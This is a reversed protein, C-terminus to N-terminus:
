RTREACAGAADAAASEVVREGGEVVKGGREEADSGHPEGVFLGALLLAHCGLLALSARPTPPYVNWASEIACFVCLRAATPIPAHWLLFPLSHFYWAYFQYHLTRAFVIGVFNAGLMTSAVERASLRRPPAAALPRRADSAARQMVARLGGDARCWRADALALLALVHAGLLALALRKSVFLPQPVFALNVSWRHEFVRSLDFSGCVYARANALLYPAGLALQIAACLAIHAVAFRAGGARLLLVLLGPAHLLASMKVSVALSFLSCCASWRRHVLAALCAYVLLSAVGDNFLRLLYISHLRKSVCLLALAWPPALRARRYVLLALALTALYIPLFALQALRNDSGDRTLARLAAFVLVFGGPYVLPGTAGRAHSYDFDGGVITRVEDMYAEWDIETYPVRAIICLGLLLEGALLALALLWFYGSDHDTAVRWGFRLLARVRAM